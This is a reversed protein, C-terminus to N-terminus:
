DASSIFKDYQQGLIMAFHFNGLDKRSQPIKKTSVAGGDMTLASIDALPDHLAQADSHM